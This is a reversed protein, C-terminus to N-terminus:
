QIGAERLISRLKKANKAKLTHDQEIERLEQERRRGGTNSKHQHERAWGANTSDGVVLFFYNRKKKDLGELEHPVGFIQEKTDGITNFMKMLKTLYHLPSHHKVVYKKSKGSFIELPYDTALAHERKTALIKNVQAFFIEHWDLKGNKALKRRLEIIAKIVKQDERKAYNMTIDRQSYCM